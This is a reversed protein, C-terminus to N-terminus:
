DIQIVLMFQTLTDELSSLKCKVNTQHVKPNVSITIAQVDGTAQAKTCNGIFPEEVWNTCLGFM